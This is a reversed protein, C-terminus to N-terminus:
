EQGTAAVDYEYAACSGALGIQGSRDDGADHTSASAPAVEVRDIEDGPELFFGADPLGAGDGGLEAPEIEHHEIFHAIQREGSGAPLKQETQDAFEVLLGRDDDGVVQGEALPRVHEAIGLHGGRQDVADGLM